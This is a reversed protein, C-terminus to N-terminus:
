DPGGNEEQRQPSLGLTRRTMMEALAAELVTDAAAFLDILEAIRSCLDRLETALGLDAPLDIRSDLWRPLVRYGSVEFSWVAEPIGTIRGTGDACLTIVGNVYEVPAVAGRPETEIRAVGPGRYGGSAERTFTEVGRIERGIRVAERFTEYRAPFPVHPFVDELDGAFRLTYSRASLLCLITHFTDEATVPEGYAASLGEILAISLNPGSVSPRRDYLAFAYAGYSGRFSHYDPLLGHCWVAPGVGVGNALTYLCVNADGWVEQLETRLFDGYARHNYLYRSDLPRYAVPRINIKTSHSRARARGSGIARIIFCRVRKRTM